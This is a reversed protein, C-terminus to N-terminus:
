RVYLFLKQENIVHHFVIECYRHIMGNSYIEYIKVILSLPFEDHTNQIKRDKELIDSVIAIPQM